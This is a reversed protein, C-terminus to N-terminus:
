ENKTLNVFYLSGINNDILLLCHDCIIVYKKVRIINLVSLQLFHKPCFINMTFGIM